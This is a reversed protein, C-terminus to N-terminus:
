IEVAGGNFNISKGPNSWRITSSLITLLYINDQGLNLNLM